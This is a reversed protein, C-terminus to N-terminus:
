TPAAKRTKKMALRAFEKDLRALTARRTDLTSVEGKADEVLVFPLCVSIVKLATFQPSLFTVRCLPPPGTRCDSYVDVFELVVNLVAIYADVEIDEPALTKSLTTETDM